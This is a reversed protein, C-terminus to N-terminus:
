IFGQFVSHCVEQSRTQGCRGIEWKGQGTSRQVVQKCKNDPIYVNSFIYGYGMKEIQNGAIRGNKFAMRSAGGGCDQFDCSYAEHGLERFANCVAQSEECGVLILM